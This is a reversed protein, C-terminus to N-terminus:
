FEIEFSDAALDAQIDRAARKLVNLYRTRNERIRELWGGLGIVAPQGQIMIPLPVCLTAGGAFPLNEAMAYGLRRAEDVKAVMEAVPVVEEKRAAINVRRILTDLAEGKLSAMLMWGVASQTLPRLEGEPVEFRLAHVSHINKIYQFFIDNKIAISVGEGTASHVDRLAELVRGNGFLAQPVWDGLATVKLTPFYVRARRDYNLYGMATLTKLLVTTSSQPYGLSACIAKLARPERQQSFFELVEVARAASKVSPLM